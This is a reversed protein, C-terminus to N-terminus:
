PTGARWESRRSPTIWIRKTNRSRHSPWRPVRVAAMLIRTPPNKSHKTAHSDEWPLKKVGSRTEHAISQCDRSAHGLRLTRVHDEIIGYIGQGSLVCSRFRWRCKPRLSLITEVESGPKRPKVSAVEFTPPSPPQSFVAIVTILILFTTSLDHIAHRGEKSHKSVVEPFM